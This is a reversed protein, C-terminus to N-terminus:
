STGSVASVYAAVDQIQEESLKDKFSPMAGAGNTVFEVVVAAAPKVDDLNPGM